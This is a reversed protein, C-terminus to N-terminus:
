FENRLLQMNKVYIAIFTNQPVVGFFAIDMGFNKVILIVDTVITFERKSMVIKM